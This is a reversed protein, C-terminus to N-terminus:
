SEAGNQAHGSGGCRGCPCYEGEIGGPSPVRGSGRCRGCVPKGAPTALAKLATQKEHWCIPCGAANLRYPGHKECNEAILGTQPISEDEMDRILDHFHECADCSCPCAIAWTLRALQLREPTEHADRLGQIMGAIVADKHAILARLEIETVCSRREQLELLLRYMDGAKNNGYRKLCAALEADSVGDKSTVTRENSM